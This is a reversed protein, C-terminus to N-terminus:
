FIYLHLGSKTKYEGFDIQMQKGYPLEPVKTYCRIKTEYKLIGSKELQHIYNRLTKECGPLELYKEELYDYVATMNLRQNNNNKYLELIESEYDEFRKQRFSVSEMYDEYEEVTMHFYKRVTAPDIQLKESIESKSFGKKKFEQIRQYM